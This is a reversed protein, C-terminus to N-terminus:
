APVSRHIPMVKGQLSREHAIREGGRCRGPGGDQRAQQGEDGGHEEAKEGDAQGQRHQRQVDVVREAEAGNQDPHHDAELRHRGHQGAAM